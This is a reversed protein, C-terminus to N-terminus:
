RGEGGTTGGASMQDDDLAHKRLADTWVVQIVKQSVHVHHHHGATELSCLRLEPVQERPRTVRKFAHHRGPRM